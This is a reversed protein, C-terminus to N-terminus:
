SSRRFGHDFRNESDCLFYCIEGTERPRREPRPAGLCNFIAPGDNPSAVGLRFMKGTLANQTPSFRNNGTISVYGPETLIWVIKAFTIWRVNLRMVALVQRRFECVLDILNGQGPSGM